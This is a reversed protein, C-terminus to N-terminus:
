KRKELLGEAVKNLLRALDKRETPTLTENLREGIFNRLDRAQRAKQKGKTTLGVMIKRRDESSPKRELWGAAELSDVARTISAKDSQTFEGLESMSCDDEGLRFLIMMQKQGFDLAKLRAASILSVERRVKAYAELVSFTSM